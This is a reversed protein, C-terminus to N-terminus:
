RGDSPPASTTGAARQAVVIRNRGQEKARYLAADAAKLAARPDPHAFIDALGGSFTVKGFPVDTSRNVLRKEAMEARADDLTEWAEALTQGRLLVVFEEGGHRAVHCRDDSIRALSQAVVRLVRDGADHGHTDNIRKFHDVDCFAVCLPEHATRAAATESELLHEFARRNPLGTLHDHEASRRARDLSRRLARTEMESRSMTREIERTRELMHRALSALEAIAMEAADGQELEGVHVQLASSYESTASRAQQSTQDFADLGAELQEMLTNLAALEDAQGDRGESRLTARELWAATVPDGRQVRRDIQRALRDDSGCVYDHAVALTLADLDLDHAHLFASIAELTRTRNDAAPSGRGTAPADGGDQRGFLRRLARRLIPGDNKANADMGM